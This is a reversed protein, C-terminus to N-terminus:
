RVLAHERTQLQVIFILYLSLPALHGNVSTFIHFNYCCCILVLKSSNVYFVFFTYKILQLYEGAIEFSFCM